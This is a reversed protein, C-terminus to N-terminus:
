NEFVTDIAQPLQSFEKVSYNNGKCSGFGYEAFVFPIEAQKAAEFDSQTDGVYLAKELKNRKIVLKINEGKTKGTIGSCEFDDFLDEFHYHALFAQIYGDQCNSVICLSYGEKLKRLTTELDSYLKAGNERLTKCEIKCCKALIELGRDHELEPLSLKAIQALTKGMYSDMEAKSIQKQTEDSHSRLVENWVPLIAETADWLTGDLDFIIGKKSM